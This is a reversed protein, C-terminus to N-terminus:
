PPGFFADVLREAPSLLQLELIEDNSQLVVPDKLIGKLALFMDVDFSAHSTRLLALLPWFLVFAITAIAAPLFSFPPISQLNVSNDSQAFQDTDDDCLSSPRSPSISPNRKTMIQDPTNDPDCENKILSLFSTRHLHTNSKSFSFRHTRSSWLVTRQQRNSPVHIWGETWQFPGVAFVFVVCKFKSLTTMM